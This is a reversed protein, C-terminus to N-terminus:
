TIEDFESVGTGTVNVNQNVDAGNVIIFGTTPSTVYAVLLNPRIATGDIFANDVMRVTSNYALGSSTSRVGVLRLPFDDAGVPKLEDFVELPIGTSYTYNGNPRSFVIM